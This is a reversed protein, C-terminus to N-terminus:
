GPATTTSRSTIRGARTLAVGPWIPRLREGAGETTEAPSALIGAMATTVRHGTPDALGALGVRGTTLGVPVALLAVLGAPAALAELVTTRGARAALLAVQGVPLAEQDESTVVMPARSLAVVTTVAAAPRPVTTVAVAVAPGKAGRSRAHVRHLWRLAQV